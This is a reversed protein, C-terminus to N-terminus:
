VLDRIHQLTTYTSKDITCTNAPHVVQMYFILLLKEVSYSLDNKLHCTALQTNLLAIGM